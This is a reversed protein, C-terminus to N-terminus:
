STMHKLEQIVKEETDNNELIDLIRIVMKDHQTPVERLPMLVESIKNRTSRSIHRTSILRLIKSSNMVQRTEVSLEEMFM